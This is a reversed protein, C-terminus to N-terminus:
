TEESKLANKPRRFQLLIQPLRLARDRVAVCILTAFSIDAKKIPQPAIYDM